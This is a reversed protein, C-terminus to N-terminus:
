LPASLSVPTFCLEVNVRECWASVTPPKSASLNGVNTGSRKIYGTIVLTRHDRISSQLIDRDPRCQQDLVPSGHAYLDASRARRGRGAATVM